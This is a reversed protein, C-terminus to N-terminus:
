DISGCFGQLDMGRKICVCGPGGCMSSDFCSTEFCFACKAPAPEVASQLAAVGLALAVTALVSAVIKRTKNM